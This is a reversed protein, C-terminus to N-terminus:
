QLNRMHATSFFETAQDDASVELTFSVVNIYPLEAADLAPPADCDGVDVIGHTPCAAEDIEQWTTRGDDNWDYELFTSSYDFVERACPSSPAARLCDVGGMLAEGNLTITKASEDFAYTLIESDGAQNPNEYFADGDYNVKVTYSTSSAATLVDGERTDRVMRNFGSRAEEAIHAISRATDSGRTQVIMVQYFSVSVLAFIAMTTLIEILTMGRANRMTKM